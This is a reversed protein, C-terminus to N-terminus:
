VEIMKTEPKFQPPLKSDCIFYFIRYKMEDAKIRYHIYVGDNWKVVYWIQCNIAYCLLRQNQLVSEYIVKKIDAM